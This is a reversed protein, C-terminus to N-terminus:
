SALTIHLQIPEALPTLGYRPRIFLTAQYSGPHGPMDTLVIRAEQLPISAWVQQPADDDLLVYQSLWTQLFAEVNSRTLFSGIKHRLIAQVHRAFCTAALLHPLSAGPPLQTPQTELLNLQSTEQLAVPWGHVSFANAVLATLWCAAHGDAPRPRVLAIFRTEECGLRVPEKALASPSQAILPTHTQAALRALRSLLVLDDAGNGFEHLSVLLSAPQGGYTGSQTQHIRKFLLSDGIFGTRGLDQLLEPKSTDLLLLSLAPSTKVNLVLNALAKWTIGSRALRPAKDRMFECFSDRDIGAMSRSAYDVTATTDSHGESLDALLVVVFPLELPRLTGATEMDPTIKVRPPPLPANMSQM